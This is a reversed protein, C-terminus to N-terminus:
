LRAIEKPPVIVGAWRAPAAPEPEPCGTPKAVPLAGLRDLLRGALQHGRGAAVRLWAAGITDNRAVGRGNLYIWAISFSADAHGQSAASCYLELARAYDRPVGEAHEYRVAMTFQGAADGALAVAPLSLIGCTALSAITRIPAHFAHRLSMLRDSLMVIAEKRRITLSAACRLPPRVTALRGETSKLKDKM